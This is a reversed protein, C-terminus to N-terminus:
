AWAHWFRKKNQSTQESGWKRVMAGVVEAGLFVGLKRLPETEGALGSLLKQGAEDMSINNFSALDSQLTVLETAFDALADGELGAAKGFMGFQNAFNLAAEESLGAARDAGEAFEQIGTAADGFVQDSKSIEEALDSAASILPEAVKFAAFLGAGVGAGVATVKRGFGKLKASTTDLDRKFQKNKLDLKITITQAM